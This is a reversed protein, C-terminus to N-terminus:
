NTCPELYLYVNNADYTITPTFCQTQPGYTISQSAFM